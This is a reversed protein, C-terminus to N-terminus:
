ADEVAKILGEFHSGSSNAIVAALYKIQKSILDEM